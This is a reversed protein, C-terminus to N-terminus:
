SKKRRCKSRPAGHVKTTCFPVGCQQMMLAFVRTIRHSSATNFVGGPSRRPPQCPNMEVRAVSVFSVQPPRVDDIAAALMARPAAGGRPMVGAPQSGLRSTAFAHSANTLRGDCGTVDIGYIVEATLGKSDAGLGWGRYLGGIRM